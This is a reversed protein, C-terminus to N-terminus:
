AAVWDKSGCKPCPRSKDQAVFPAACEACKVIDFLGATGARAKLEAELKKVRANLIKGVTREFQITDQYLKERQERVQKSM